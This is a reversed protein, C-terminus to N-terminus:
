ITLYFFLFPQKKETGIFYDYNISQDLKSHSIKLLESEEVNLYKVNLLDLDIQDDEIPIKEFFVLNDSMEPKYIANTFNLVQTLSDVQVIDIENSWTISRHNQAFLITSFLITFFLYQVKM